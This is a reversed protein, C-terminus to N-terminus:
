RAALRLLALLAKAKQHLADLVVGDEHEVGVAPHCRPVGAGLQDLSVASRLDDPLVEALEIRGLRAVERRVLQLDSRRLSAELVFAPADPLIPRAEPRVDDNGREVPWVLLQDSKGLDRAVQGVAALVLFVKPLAFVAEPQQDVADAV